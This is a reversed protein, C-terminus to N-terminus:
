VAVVPPWRRSSRGPCREGGSGGDGSIREAAVQGVAAAKWPRVDACCSSPGRGGQGNLARRLRAFRHGPEAAGLGAVPVAAVAGPHGAVDEGRRFRPCWSCRRPGTGDRDDLQGLRDAGAPVTPEDTEVVDLVPKAALGLQEGIGPQQVRPRGLVVSRRGARAPATRRGRAATRTRRRRRSPLVASASDNPQSRASM